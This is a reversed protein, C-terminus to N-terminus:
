LLSIKGVSTKKLNTAEAQKYSGLEKQTEFKGQLGM